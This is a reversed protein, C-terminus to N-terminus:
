YYSKSNPSKFRNFLRKHFYFMIVLGPFILLGILVFGLTSSLLALCGAIVHIGSYIGWMKGSARNYAKVDTIMEAPISVGSFFPFPKRLRSVLFTTVGYVFAFVWCVVAGTSDM